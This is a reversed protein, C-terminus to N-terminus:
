KVVILRKSKSQTGVSFKIVYIGSELISADFFFRNLGQEIAGSHLEKILRGNIDFLEMKGSSSANIKTEICTMAKAPNPYITSIEITPDLIVENSAVTYIPKFSWAGKEGTIPRTIKKGNNAEAAIYYYLLTDGVSPIKAEWNDATTPKMARSEWLLSSAKRFYVTANKIGSIHKIIAKPTYLSQWIGNEEEWRVDQSKLKGHAIWLPENVGIEKTICHIAGGQGIIATCNIGVIKHGPLAKQWIKLATTDYQLEYTPLIVTKNVFVANAYTRYYGGANPYKGNHPPMPIRIVDYNKGFPTKFQSLVYQMNAEIQPGDAVGDPYQGILLTEEDLLKMHMDIHHIGDFPLVPMKIFREIGMYSRMVSDIQAETKNPNENLILKSAFATGMGDSMFNGGTNILEDSPKFQTKFVSKQLLKGMADPILDDATRIPRNYKWDVFSLTDVDNQYVTNQGYDRIWITNTPSNLFIIRNDLPINASQLYGRASISDATNSCVIIVNTEEIANKVIDKLIPFNAKWAITIAQEEEWEAMTRVPQIPATNIVKQSFVIPSFLSIFALFTTIRKM